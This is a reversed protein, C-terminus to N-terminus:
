RIRRVDDEEIDTIGLKDILMRSVYTIKRAISKKKILSIKKYYMNLYKNDDEDIKDLFTCVDLFFNIYKEKFNSLSARLETSNQATQVLANQRKLSQFNLYIGKRVEQYLPLIKKENNEM